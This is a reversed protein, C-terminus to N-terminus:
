AARRGRIRKGAVIQKPKTWDCFTEPEGHEAVLRKVFDAVIPGDEYWERGRALVPRLQRHLNTEDDLTGPYIVLVEVDPGYARLRDDVQRSWGVKILGNLRVFYIHGDKRALRERKARARADANKAQKYALVRAHADVLAPHDPDSNFQQTAVGLHTLCLPLAARHDRGEPDDHMLRGLLRLEEGCGPVLCISWDIGRNIKANRQKESRERARRDRQIRALRGDVLATPPDSAQHRRVDEPTLDLPEYQDIRKNRRPM